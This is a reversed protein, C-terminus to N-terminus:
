LNVPGIKWHKRMILSAKWFKMVLNFGNFLDNPVILFSAYEKNAADFSQIIFGLYNVV